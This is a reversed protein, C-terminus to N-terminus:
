KLFKPALYDICAMEVLVSKSYGSETKCKALIARAKPSLTLNTPPKRRATKVPVGKPKRNNKVQIVPAQTDKPPSM